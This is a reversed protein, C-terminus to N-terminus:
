WEDPGNIKFKHHIANADNQSEEDEQGSGSDGEEGETKEEKNANNEEENKNSEEENTNSEEENKNNEEENTNSEEKEEENTEEKNENSKEEKGEGLVSLIDLLVDIPNKSEKIGKLIKRIIPLRLLLFSFFFLHKCSFILSTRLTDPKNRVM